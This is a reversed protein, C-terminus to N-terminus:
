QSFRGTTAEFRRPVAFYGSRARVNWGKKRTSVRIKHFRGDDAHFTPSYGLFYQLRLELAIQRAAEAAAPIGNLYFARGGSAVALKEAAPRGGIGRTWRVAGSSIIVSYIIINEEQAIRLARELTEDSGGENGETFIILVRRSDADERLRAAALRVADFLRHTQRGMRPLEEAQDVSHAIASPDSILDQLLTLEADYQLVLASDNPGITEHVFVKAAEKEAPLAHVWCWSGSDLLLGAALPMNETTSFYAVHQPIGDETLEFDDASLNSIIHGDSSRVTAFVNVVRTLVRLDLRSSTSQQGMAPSALFSSFIFALFGAVIEAGFTFRFRVSPDIM